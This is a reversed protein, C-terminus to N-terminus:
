SEASDMFGSVDLETLEGNAHKPLLMHRIISVDGLVKVFKSM